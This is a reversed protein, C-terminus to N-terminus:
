GCRWYLISVYGDIRSNAEEETLDCRWYLISVYDRYLGTRLMKEIGADGISFQFRLAVAGRAASTARLHMELLSNFGDVHWV